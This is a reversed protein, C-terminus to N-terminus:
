SEHSHRDEQQMVEKCKKCKRKGKFALAFSIIIKVAIVISVGIILTQITESCLNRQGNWGQNILEYNM